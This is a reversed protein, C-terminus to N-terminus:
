TYFPRDRFRFVCWGISCTNRLAHMGQRRSPFFCYQVNSPLINLNKAARNVTHGGFLTVFDLGPSNNIVVCFGAREAKGSRETSIAKKRKMRTPPPAETAMRM